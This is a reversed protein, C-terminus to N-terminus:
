DGVATTTHSADAHAQLYDIREIVQAGVPDTKALRSAITLHSRMNRHAAWTPLVQDDRNLLVEYCEALGIHTECAERLSIAHEFAHIAKYPEDLLLFVRGRSYAIEATLEESDGAPMDRIAREALELYGYAKLPTVHRDCLSTALDCYAWGRLISLSFADGIEQGVISEPENRFTRLCRRLESVAQDHLGARVCSHALFLSGLIELGPLSRAARFHEIAAHDERISANLRGLWYRAQFRLTEDSALMLVKEFHELADDRDERRAVPSADGLYWAARGALLHADVNDPSLLLAGQAAERAEPWEGRAEHVLGLELREFCKLPDLEVSRKAWQLALELEGRERYASAIWAGLALDRIEGQHDQKLLRAASLFARLGADVDEEEMYNVGLRFQARATAWDRGERRYRRALAVLKPQDHRREKVERPVEAMRRVRDARPTEGIRQLADAVAAFTESGTSSALIRDPADLAERCSKATAERASPSGTRGYELAHASAVYATYHPTEPSAHAAREFQTLAARRRGRAEYLRGLAVHIEADMASLALAQKFLVEARRRLSRVCVARPIVRPVAVYRETSASSLNALNDAKASYAVALNSMCTAALEAQRDLDVNRSAGIGLRAAALARFARSPARERDRLADDFQGLSREILGALDYASARDRNPQRVAAMRRAIDLASAPKDLDFYRVRALAYNAALRAPRRKIARLYASEAAEYRRLKAYVIGLNYHALDFAPDHHLAKLFGREARHLYFVRLGDSAGNSLHLGYSEMGACFASTTEWNSSGSGSVATFVRAALEHVAAATPVGSMPVNIQWSGGERAGLRQAVIVIGNESRILTGTVRPGRVIRGALRGIADIPVKVLPGAQLVSGAAFGSELFTSVDEGIVTAKASRYREDEISQVSQDTEPAERHLLRLREYEIPVKLTLAKAFEDMGLGTHDSFEEFTTTKRLKNIWRVILL